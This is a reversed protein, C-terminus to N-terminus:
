FKNFFPSLCFEASPQTLTGLLGVNGSFPVLCVRGDLMLTAGSFLGSGQPLPTSNSYTLALPDVMGVNASNFPALIVNGSPLLCGGSFANLGTNTVINSLTLASPSFVGVNSGVMIVNGNPALVGGSFRSTGPPGLFFSNSVTSAFPNFQCINSNTNAVLVVNGNPLLVGGAFNGDANIKVVNSFLNLDSNYTGINSTTSAPIMVVNGNPALVGGSFSPTPVGHIFSNSLTASDYNLVAVNASSYPVLVIKGSPALVGGRYFAGTQAGSVGSGVDSYTVPFSPNLSGPCSYNYPVLVVRGSQALVGGVFSLFIGANPAVNSYVPFRSRSWFSTRGGVGATSIWSQILPDNAPSPALYPASNVVYDAYNTGTVAWQSGIWTIQVTGYNVSILFPQGSRGDITDAGNPSVTLPVLSAQGTEDKIVYSKGAYVGLGQPLTLTLGTATAGVFYDTPQITYNTGVLQINNPFSPPPVAGGTRIFYASM